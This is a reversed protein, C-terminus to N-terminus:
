DARVGPRFYPRFDGHREKIGGFAHTLCWVVDVENLQDKYIQMDYSSRSETPAKPRLLPWLMAALALISIGGAVIFFTM